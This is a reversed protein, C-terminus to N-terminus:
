KKVAWFLGYDITGRSLANYSHLMHDRVNDLNAGWKKEVHKAYWNYFAPVRFYLLYRRALRTYIDINNKTVIESTRLDFGLHDLVDRYSEFSELYPVDWVRLFAKYHDPWQAIKQPVALLDSFAFIGGPKLVRHVEALFQRKDPFHAPSEISWVLPVSEDAIPLHQADGEVFSVSPWVERMRANKNAREVNYPTIDVGQVKLGYELNAHIGAGGRGSGIDLLSMEARNPSERHLELMPGAIRDILRIFNADNLHRQWFKSHGINLYTSVDIWRMLFRYLDAHSNSDSYQGHVDALEWGDLRVGKPTMMSSKPRVNKSSQILSADDVIRADETIRPDDILV